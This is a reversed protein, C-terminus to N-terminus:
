LGFARLAITLAALVLIGGFILYPAAPGIDSWRPLAPGRRAPAAEIRQGRWYTVRGRSPPGGSRVWAQWGIVLLWVGSGGAALASVYWPLRGASALVVIVVIAVVWRWDFRVNSV